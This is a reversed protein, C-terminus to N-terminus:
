HVLPIQQALDFNIIAELKNEIQFFRTVKMAPLIEKFKEVFSQKTILRMREYSLYEDLMEQAKADTMNKNKVTDAYDTILRVRRNNVTEMKNQYERYIKWFKDEEISTLNMNQAVIQKKKVKIVAQTLEIEEKHTEMSGQAYASIHSTFIIILSLTSLFGKPTKM